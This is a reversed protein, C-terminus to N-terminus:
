PSSPHFRPCLPFRPRLPPVRVPSLPLNIRQTIFYFAGGGPRSLFTDIQWGDRFHIEQNQILRYRIM